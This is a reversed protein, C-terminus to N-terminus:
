LLDAELRLKQYVQFMQEATMGSDWHYVARVSMNGPASGVATNGIALLTNAAPLVVADDTRVLMNDVLLHSHSGNYGVVAVKWRNQVYRDFPLAAGDYDAAYVLQLAEYNQIIGVSQARLLFEIGSPAGAGNQRFIIATTVQQRSARSWYIDQTQFLISDAALTPKNVINGDSTDSGGGTIWAGISDIIPGTTNFVTPYDASNRHVVFVPETPFAATREKLDVGEFRFNAAQAFGIMYLKGVTEGTPDVVLSSRYLRNAAWHATGTDRNPSAIPYLQWTTADTSTGAWLEVDAGAATDETDNYNRKPQAALVIYYGNGRARVEAHWPRHTAPLGNLTCETSGGAWSALSNSTWHEVTYTGAAGPSVDVAWAGYTAAAGSHVLRDFSPSVADGGVVISGTRITAPAESGNTGDWDVGNTSSAHRWLFNAGSTQTWFLHLRGDKYFIHPDANYDAGVPTVEIPNTLGTPEVWTAGDASSLLSPNERQNNGAPYPSVGMWYTHGDPGFPSSLKLVSLHVVEATTGDVDMTVTAANPTEPLLVSPLASFDPLPAGASVDAFLHLLAGM